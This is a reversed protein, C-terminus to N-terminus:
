FGLGEGAENQRTGGRSGNQSQVVNRSFAALQFHPEPYKGQLGLCRHGPLSSMEPTVLWKGSSCDNGRWGPVCQCQNPAVCRGHVCEQACVAPASISHILLHRWGVDVWRKYRCGLERGCWPSFSELGVATGRHLFISSFCSLDPSSLVGPNQAEPGRKHFVRFM